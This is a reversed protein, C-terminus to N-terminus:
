GQTRKTKPSFLFNTQYDAQWNIGYRKNKERRKKKTKKGEKGGGGGGVREEGQRGSDRM